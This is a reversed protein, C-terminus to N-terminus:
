SRCSTWRAGTSLSSPRRADITAERSAVLTAMRKFEKLVLGAVSPNVHVDGAVAGRVAAVIEDADSDKLLYGCVGARVADFVWEDTDYSTLAIIRVGPLQQSLRRTAEIGNMHPMKLDMLIVDPHEALGREVADLGDAAFGAVQLDAHLGIIVGLGQRVIDQDDVILVRVRDM